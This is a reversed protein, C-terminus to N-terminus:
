TLEVPPRIARQMLLCKWHKKLLRGRKTRSRNGIDVVVEMWGDMWWYLWVKARVFTDIVPRLINTRKPFVVVESNDDCVLDFVRAM